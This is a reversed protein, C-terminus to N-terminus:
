CNTSLNYNGYGELLKTIGWFVLGAGFAVIFIQLTTVVSTFSAMHKGMHFLKWIEYKKIYCQFSWTDGKM